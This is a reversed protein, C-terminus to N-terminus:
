SRCTQSYWNWEKKLSFSSWKKLSNFHVFWALPFPVPSCVVSFLSKLLNSFPLLLCQNFITILHFCFSPFLHLLSHLETLHPFCSFRLIESSRLQLLTYPVKAEEEGWGWFFLIPSIFLILSFVNLQPSTRSPCWTTFHFYEIFVLESKKLFTIQTDVSRNLQANCSSFYTLFLM